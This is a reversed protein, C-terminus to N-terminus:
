FRVSIFVKINGGIQGDSAGGRGVRGNGGLGGVGSEGGGGGTGEAEGKGIETQEGEQRQRKDAYGQQIKM